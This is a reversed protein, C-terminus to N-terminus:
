DELLEDVQDGGSDVESDSEDDSDIEEIEAALDDFLDDLRDRPRSPRMAVQSAGEGHHPATLPPRQLGLVPAVGYEAYHHLREANQHGFIEALIEVPLLLLKSADDVELELLQAELAMFNADPFDIDLLDLVLHVRPYTVTGPVVPPPQTLVQM